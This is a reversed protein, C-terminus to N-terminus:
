QGLKGTKKLIDYIRKDKIKTMIEINSLNYNLNLEMYEKNTTRNVFILPIEPPKFSSLVTWFAGIYISDNNAKLIFPLGEVNDSININKIRIIQKEWNYKIIDDQTIVPHEILKIENFNKIDKLDEIKMDKLLYIEIKDKKNCSFLFFLFSFFILFLFHQLLKISYDKRM